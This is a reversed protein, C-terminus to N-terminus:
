MIPSYNTDLEGMAKIIEVTIERAAKNTKLSPIAKETETELIPPEKDLKDIDSKTKETIHEDSFLKKM